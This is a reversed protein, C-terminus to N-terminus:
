KKEGALAAREQYERKLECCLALEDRLRDREEAADTLFKLRAQMRGIDRGTGYIKWEIPDESDDTDELWLKFSLSAEMCPMGQRDLPQFPHFPGGDNISM